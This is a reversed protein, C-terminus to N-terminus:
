GLYSQIPFEGSAVTVSPCWLFTKFVGELLGKTGAVNVGVLPQCKSCVMLGPVVGGVMNDGGKLVGVSGVEHLYEWLLFTWPAELLWVLGKVATVTALSTQGCM